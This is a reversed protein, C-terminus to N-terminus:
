VKVSRICEFISLKKMKIKEFNIVDEDFPQQSEQQANSNLSSALLFKDDMVRMLQTYELRVSRIEGKRDNHLFQCWPGYQCFGREHYHRCKTTKYHNFPKPKLEEEGHAFSCRAGLPCLEGLM